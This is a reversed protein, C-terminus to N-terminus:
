SNFTFLHLGMKKLNQAPVRGTGNPAGFCPSLVWDDVM